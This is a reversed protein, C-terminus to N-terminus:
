GAAAAVAFEEATMPLALQGEADLVPEAEVSVSTQTLGLAADPAIMITAGMTGATASEVTGLVEGDSSVVTVGVMTQMDADPTATTMGSGMTGTEAAGTATDAPADPNSADDAAASTGATNGDKAPLTEADSGTASAAM